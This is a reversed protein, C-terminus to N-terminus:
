PGHQWFFSAYSVVYVAVPVLVFAKVVPWARRTWLYAIAGALLLFPVASWKVAVAAGLALGAGWWESGIRRQTDGTGFPPDTRARVLFVFGLLVLTSMFI